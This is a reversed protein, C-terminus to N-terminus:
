SGDNALLCEKYAQPKKGRGSRIYPDNTAAAVATTISRVNTFFDMMKVKASIPMKANQLECHPRELTGTKGSTLNHIERVNTLCNRLSLSLSLLTMEIGGANKGNRTEAVTYWHGNLPIVAKTTRGLTTTYHFM